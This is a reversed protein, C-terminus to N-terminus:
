CDEEAGTTIISDTVEDQRLTEEDIHVPRKNQSSMNLVRKSVNQNLVWKQNSVEVHKANECRLM